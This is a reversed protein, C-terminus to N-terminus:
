DGSATSLSAFCPSIVCLLFTRWRSSILSSIASWNRRVQATGLRQLRSREANVFTAANNAEFAYRCAPDLDVGMVVDIGARGLGQTGGVGCFLDIAAIRRAASAVM